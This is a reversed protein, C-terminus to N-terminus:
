LAPRDDVVDDAGPSPLHASRRRQDHTFAADGHLEIRIHHMCLAHEDLEVRRLQALEVLFARHVAIGLQEIPAAHSRSAAPLAVGARRRAASASRIVFRTAESARAYAM